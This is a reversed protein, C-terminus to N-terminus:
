KRQDHPVLIEVQGLSANGFFDSCEVTAAYTRGGGGGQRWAMLDLELADVIKWFVDDSKGPSATENVDVGLIRCVPAPDVADKAVVSIRVRRLAKNPPWLVSPSASISEIRPPTTDRVTVQQVCTAMLHVSANSEPDFREDRNTASWTVATTGIPYLGSAIGDNSLDIGECVGGSVVPQGLTVVAGSKSTAQAVVNAPCSIQPPPDDIQLSVEKTDAGGDDDVAEVAIAFAGCGSYRHDASLTASRGSEDPDDYAINMPGHTADGWEITAVHTDLVGPDHLAAALQVTEDVFYQLEVSSEEDPCAEWPSCDVRLRPPVNAVPLSLTHQAPGCEPVGHTIQYVGNDAFIHSASFRTMGPTVSAEGGASLVASDDGFDWTGTRSGACQSSWDSEFEIMQGELAVGPRHRISPVYPARDIQWNVGPGSDVDRYALWVDPALDDIQLHLQQNQVANVPVSFV